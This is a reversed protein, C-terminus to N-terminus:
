FLAGSVGGIGRDCDLVNLTMDVAAKAMVERPGEMNIMDHRVTGM